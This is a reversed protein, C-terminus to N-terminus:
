RGGVGALPLWTPRAAVSRRHQLAEVKALQAGVEFAREGARPDGVVAQEGLDTRDDLVHPRSTVRRQPVVGPTEVPDLDVLDPHRGGVDVPRPVPDVRLQEGREALRRPGNRRKVAM